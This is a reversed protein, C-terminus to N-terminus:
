SLKQIIYYFTLYQGTMLRSRVDVPYIPLVTSPMQRRLADLPSATEVNLTLM